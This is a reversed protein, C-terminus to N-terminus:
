HVCIIWFALKVLTKHMMERKKNNLDSYGQCTSCMSFSLKIKIIWEHALFHVVAIIIIIFCHISLYICTSVNLAVSMQCFKSSCINSIHLCTGYLMVLDSYEFFSSSDTTVGSCPISEIQDVFEKKCNFCSFALHSWDCFHNCWRCRMMKVPCLSWLLFDFCCLRLTVYVVTENKHIVHSLTAKKRIWWLCLLM